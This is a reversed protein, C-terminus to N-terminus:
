ETRTWTQTRGILSIGIYGRVDLSRGDESLTMKCSYTKGNKPDYIDGDEWVLDEDYEFDLLMVMGLIPRSRQKEEPNEKDVKPNGQEDNPEKLWVIKGFYRDGKKYIQVKANKDQVLWNGIVLDAEATQAVATSAFIFIWALLISPVSYRLM